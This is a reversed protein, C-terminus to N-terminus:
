FGPSEVRENGSSWQFESGSEQVTLILDTACLIHRMEGLRYSKTTCIECCCRFQMPGRAKTTMCFCIESKRFNAFSRRSRQRQFGRWIICM